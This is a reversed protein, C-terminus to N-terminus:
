RKGGKSNDFRITRAIQRVILLLPRTIEQCRACIPILEGDEPGGFAVPWVHQRQRGVEMKEALAWSIGCFACHNGHKEWVDEVDPGKVKGEVHESSGNQALWWLGERIPDRCRCGPCFAGVNNGNQPRREVLGVRRCNRCALQDKKENFETLNMDKM